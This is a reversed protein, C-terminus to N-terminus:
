RTRIMKKTDIIKEGIFLSYSYTGSPLDQTDINILGYGSQLIQEQMTRGLM